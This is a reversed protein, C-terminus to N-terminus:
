CCCFCYFYCHVIINVNANWLKNKTLSLLALLTWSIIAFRTIAIIGGPRWDTPQKHTVSNRQIYNDYHICASSLTHENLKIYTRALVRAALCIFRLSASETHEGFHSVSRASTNRRIVRSIHMICTRSLRAM